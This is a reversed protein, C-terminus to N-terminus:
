GRTFSLMVALAIKLFTYKMEAMFSFYKPYIQLLYNSEVVNFNLHPM